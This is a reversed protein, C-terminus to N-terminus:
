RGYDDLFDALISYNDIPEVGRRAMAMLHKREYIIPLPTRDTTTMSLACRLTDLTCYQDFIYVNNTVDAGISPATLQDNFLVFSQSCLENAHTRLDLVNKHWSHCCKRHDVSNAITSPVALKILMHNGTISFCQPATKLTTRDGFTSAHCQREDIAIQTRDNVYKPKYLQTVRYVVGRFAVYPACFFVFQKALAPTAVMLDFTKRAQESWLLSRHVCNHVMELYMERARNSKTLIFLRNFLVQKAAVVVNTDAEQACTQGFEVCNMLLQQKAQEDMTCLEGRESESRDKKGYFAGVCKNRYWQHLTDSQSVVATNDDPNLPMRRLHRANEYATANPDDAIERCMVIPLVNSIVLQTFLSKRVSSDGAFVIETSRLASTRKAALALHSTLFGFQEKALVHADIVVIKDYLTLHLATDDNYQANSHKFYAQSHLLPSWHMWSAFRNTHIIEPVSACCLFLTKPHISWGIDMAGTCPQICVSLRRCHDRIAILDSATRKASEFCRATTYLHTCSLNEHISACRAREERQEYSEAFMIRLGTSDPVSTWAGIQHLYYLAGRVVTENALEATVRRTDYGSSVSQKGISKLLLGCDIVDDDRRWALQQACHMRYALDCVLELDEEELSGCDVMLNKTIRKTFKLMTSRVRKDRKDFYEIGRWTNLFPSMCRDRWELVDLAGFFPAVHHNNNRSGSSDVCLWHKIAYVEMASLSLLEGGGVRLDRICQDLSPRNATLRASKGHAGGDGDDDDDDDGDVEEAEESESADGVLTNWLNAGGDCDNNDDYDFALRDWGTAHLEDTHLAYANGLLMAMKANMDDMITAYRKAYNALVSLRTTSVRATKLVNKCMREINTNGFVYVKKADAGGNVSNNAGVVSTTSASSNSRARKLSTSKSLLGKSAIENDVLARRACAGIAHRCDGFAGTFDFRVLSQNAKWTKVRRVEYMYQFYCAMAMANSANDADTRGSETRLQRRLIEVDLPAGRRDVLLRTPLLECRVLSLSVDMGIHPMPLLNTDRIVVINMTKGSFIVGRKRRTLPADSSEENDDSEISLDDCAQSDSTSEGCIEANLPEQEIPIEYTGGDRTNRTVFYLKGSVLYENHANGASESVVSKIKGRFNYQRRM